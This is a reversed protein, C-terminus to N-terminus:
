SIVHRAGAGSTWWKHLHEDHPFGLQRHGAFLKLAQAAAATEEASALFRRVADHKLAYRRMDEALREIVEAQRLTLQRIIKIDDIAPLLMTFHPMCLTPLAGPSGNENLGAALGLLTEKETAARHHCVLCSAQSYAIARVKISVNRAEGGENAIERLQAALSELLPPFGSSLGQPSSLSELQWSHFSCLGGRQTFLTRVNEDFSIDYQLQSLYRWLAEHVDRCVVCSGVPRAESIRISRSAPMAKGASALPSDRRLEDLRNLLPKSAQSPLESLLEVSRAYFSRLFEAEKESLLFRQLEREFAAIGSEEVKDGDASLKAQLGERASVSFLRRSEGNLTDIQDRIYNLAGEREEPSLLDQKNVAVFLPKGAATISRLFQFEEDSLASDYSTVLIFADGEPLFNETTRTNETVASGVGPTDVFHFGRRLMGVPLQVEVQKVGRVNGPNGHQTIYLPLEEMAIPSDLLRSGYKIIAKESSGYGISTIVSTIPVIGTPLRDTALLANMLSTKGRSFRGVFVVNFRDEALRAFLDRLRDRWDDGMSGSHVSASRLLDALAFKYNEYARLGLNVGERSGQALKM